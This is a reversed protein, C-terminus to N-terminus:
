RLYWKSDGNLISLCFMKLVGLSFLQFPFKEVPDKYSISHMDLWFNETSSTDLALEKIMPCEFELEKQSQPYLYKRKLHLKCSCHCNSRFQRPLSRDQYPAQSKRLCERGTEIEEAYGHNLKTHIVQCMINSESTKLTKAIEGNSRIERGTQKSIDSSTAFSSLVVGCEM